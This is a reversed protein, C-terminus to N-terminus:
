LAAVNSGTINLKRCVLESACDEKSDLDTRGTQKRSFKGGLTGVAHILCRCKRWGRRGEDFQGTRSEEPNGAECEKRHRRYLKSNPRCVVNSARQVGNCAPFPCHLSTISYAPPSPPIRVWTGAKPLCSAKSAGGNHGSRYRESLFRAKSVLYPFRPRM